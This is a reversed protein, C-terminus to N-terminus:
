EGGEDEEKFAKQIDKKAGKLERGAQGLGRALEPLKKGGFLVLLVVLIVIIEVAGLNKFM